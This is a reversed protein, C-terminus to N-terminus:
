LKSKTNKYLDRLDKRLIKGSLNKPIEDIFKVGGRLWKANSANKAVFDKVEEETLEVGPQKVVFAFPLEGAVEDPIGIVGVDKIKPNKLLLAELEAPPVQFAKYKILEKLRDVIFFQFDDDYYGLDGTHLWGDKDIIESTAKEDNVYGKMIRTSKFCLEGVKNPGLSNGNEDIVKAYVGKMPQGVSGPKLLVTGGLTGFVSETMGYGQRITVQGKFRKMVQEEIEVSLHAAGSGIDKISSLDYKDVLPSKALLVMIPPVVTIINVKHKEIAKFFANEEFRPLFVATAERSCSILLMSIFGFGHFFPAINLIISKTDHLMRFLVFMDRYSQIISLVNEQTQQVGKAIGTTGSSMMIFSLQNKIDVKKSANAEVNFNKDENKIFDNMSKIKGESKNGDLHVITKVFDLKNCVSTVLKAAFASTFVIKPRSLNLAHTLERETYTVNIPAVVANLYLAGFSIIPFEIRNESLIAISDNQRLGVGYLIRAAKMSEVRVDNYTWKKDTVGSIFLTQDGGLLLDNLIVAGLSGRNEDLPENSESYDGGYLINPDNETQM